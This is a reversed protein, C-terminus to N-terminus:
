PQKKTHLEMEQLLEKAHAERWSATLSGDFARNLLTQFLTEIVVNSTTQHIMSSEAFDVKVKFAERLERPPCPIQLAQFTSKNMIPLTTSSAGAIIKNKLQRLVELGFADFSEDYWEVANIQQNFTSNESAKGMKGITAGICCVLTSGKRVIRSYQAGEETLSRNHSIWTEKLDAPTVFPIPGDFMAELRSPPTAGTVVRGLNSLAERPWAIAETSVDGFMKQFLAPIIRQSIAYAERRQQRLADAQDLIEVIRQQESLPPLPFKHESIIRDSVAPYGAGKAQSVMDNIFADTTLRYFLYKSNVKAPDARLVAFGTSAIQDNLEAPVQAVANLNPRVTSVLIDHTKIGKRARSPADQCALFKADEIRKTERNISTIDVYTFTGSAKSPDRQRIPLTCNGISEFPWPISSKQNM